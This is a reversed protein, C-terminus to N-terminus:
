YIDFVFIDLEGQVFFAGAGPFIRGGTCETKM